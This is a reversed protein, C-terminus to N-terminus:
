KVRPVPDRRWTYLLTKFFGFGHCLLLLLGQGFLDGQQVNGLSGQGMGTIGPLFPTAPATCSHIHGPQKLPTLLVPCLKTHEGGQHTRTVVPCPSGESWVGLSVATSLCQRPVTRDWREAEPGARAVHKDRGPQICFLALGARLAPTVSSGLSLAPGLPGGSSQLVNRTTSCWRSTGQGRVRATVEVQPEEELSSGYGM